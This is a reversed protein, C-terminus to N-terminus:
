AASSTGVNMRESFQAVAADWAWLRSARSSGITPLLRSPKTNVMSRCTCIWTDSVRAGLTIEITPVMSFRTLSTSWDATPLWKRLVNCLRSATRNMSVRSSTCSAASAAM